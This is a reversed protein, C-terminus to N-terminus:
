SSGEDKATGASSGKSLSRRRTRGQPSTDTSSVPSTSASSGHRTSLDVLYQRVIRVAQRRHRHYNPDDPDLHKIM